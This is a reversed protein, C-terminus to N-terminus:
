RRPRTSRCASTRGSGARARCAPGSRGARPSPRTSWAARGAGSSRATCSAPRRRVSRRRSVIRSRPPAIWLFPSSTVATGGRRSRKKSGSEGVWCSAPRSRAAPYRDYRTPPLTRSANSSRGIASTSMSSRHGARRSQPSRGATPRRRTAAPGASRSRRSRSPRRADELDRREAGVHVPGLAALRLHREGVVDLGIERPAVERDVRHRDREIRLVPGLEDVRVVPRASRTARRRRVGSEGSIDNVSSGNRMSRAARKTAVSPSRVPDPSRARSRPSARGAPLDDAGFPDAVLERLQQERRRDTARATASRRSGARRRTGARASRSALEFLIRDM